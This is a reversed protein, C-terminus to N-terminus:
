SFTLPDSLNMWFQQPAKIQDLEILKQSHFSLRWRMEEGRSKWGGKGTSMKGAGPYWKEKKRHGKMVKGENQQVLASKTDSISDQFIQGDGSVLCKWWM